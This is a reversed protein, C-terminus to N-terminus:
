RFMNKIDRYVERGKDTRVLKNVDYLDDRKYDDSYSVQGHANAAIFMFLGRVSSGIFIVIFGPLLMQWIYDNYMDNAYLATAIGAIIFIIMTLKSYDEDYGVINNFGIQKFFINIMYCPFGIILSGIVIYLFLVGIGRILGNETITRLVTMATFFMLALTAVTVTVRSIGYCLKISLKKMLLMGKQLYCEIGFGCKVVTAIVDSVRLGM